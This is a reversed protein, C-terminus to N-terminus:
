GVLEGVLDGVPVSGVTLRCHETKMSLTQRRVNIKDVSKEM